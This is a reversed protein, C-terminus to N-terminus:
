RLKKAEESAENREKQVDLIDSLRLINRSLSEVTCDPLKITCRKTQGASTGSRSTPMRVLLFWVRTISGPLTRSKVRTTPMGSSATSTPGRWLGRVCLQSGLGCLEGQSHPFGGM